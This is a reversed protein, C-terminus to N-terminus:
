IKISYIKVNLVACKEMFVTCHTCYQVSSYAVSDHRGLVQMYDVVIVVCFYLFHHYITYPNKTKCSFASTMKTVHSM